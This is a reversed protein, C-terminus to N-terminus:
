RRCGCGSRFPPSKFPATCGRHRAQLSSRTRGSSQEHRPTGAQRQLVAHVRRRSGAPTDRADRPMRASLSSPGNCTIRPPHASVPTSSCESLRSKTRTPECSDTACIVSKNDLGHLLDGRTCHKEKIAQTQTPARHTSRKFLSSRWYKFFQFRICSWWTTSPSFNAIIAM